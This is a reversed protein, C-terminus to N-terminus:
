DLELKLPALGTALLRGLPKLTFAPRQEYFHRDGLLAEGVRDILALVVRPADTSVRLRGGPGDVRVLAGGLPRQGEAAVAAGSADLTAAAVPTAAWAVALHVM